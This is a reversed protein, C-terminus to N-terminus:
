SGQWDLGDNSLRRYKKSEVEDIIALVNGLIPRQSEMEAITSKLQNIQEDLTTSM